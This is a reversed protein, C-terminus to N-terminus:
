DEWNENLVTQADHCLKRGTFSSYTGSEYNSFPIMLQYRNHWHCYIKSWSCELRLRLFKIFIAQSKTM